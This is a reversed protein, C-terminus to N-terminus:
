IFRGYRFFERDRKLAEIDVDQLCMALAVQGDARKPLAYVIGPDAPALPLRVAECPGLGLGFDLAYAKVNSFSSFMLDINTRLTGMYNLISKDTSRHLMTVAGRTIYALGTKKHDLESRLRSATTGLPEKALIRLTATDYVCMTVMGPHAEPIGFLHRINVARSMTAEESPDLHALRARVIAKWVFATLADDTSIFGLDTSINQQAIHKLTGLSDSDFILNVWSSPTAPGSLPVTPDVPPIIRGYLEPGPQYSDDLFPILNYRPLNATTIEEPTFAEGHCAKSLLHLLQGMGPYDMSQHQGAVTLVLGGPIFNAQLILVPKPGTMTGSYSPIPAIAREDLFKFPFDAQRLEEMSPTSPDRSLDKVILSPTDGLGTIKFRGTHTESPPEYVVQGAVWPFSRTLNDLGRKLTNIAATQASPSSEPM